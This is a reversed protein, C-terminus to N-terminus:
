TISRQQLNVPCTPVDYTTNEIPSSYTRVARMNVEWSAPGSFHVVCPSAPFLVESKTGEGGPGAHDIPQVTLSDVTLRDINATFPGPQQAINVGNLISTAAAYLKVDGGPSVRTADVHAHIHDATMSGILDALGNVTVSTKTPASIIVLDPGVTYSLPVSFTKTQPPNQSFAVAGLMLVALGVALLKLRWDDTILNVQPVQPLRQRELAVSNELQGPPPARRRRPQPHDKRRRDGLHKRDGGLSRPGPRRVGAVAGAGRSPAHRAKRPGRGGRPSAAPLGRRCDQPWARHGTRRQAPPLPLRDASIQNGQTGPLLRPLLYLALAVVAVDFVEVLSLHRIVLNLQTIFDNM